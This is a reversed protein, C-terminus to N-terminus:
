ARVLECPIKLFLIRILERIPKCLTNQGYEAGKELRKGSGSGGGQWGVKHESDCRKLGDLRIKNDLYEQTHLKTQLSTLKSPSM